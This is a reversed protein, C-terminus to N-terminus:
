RLVDRALNIQVLLFNSGGRDPHLSQTLERHKKKIEDQSAGSPLGLVEYAESRSMHNSAQRFPIQTQITQTKNKEILASLAHKAYALAAKKRRYKQHSLLVKDGHEIFTYWFRTEADYELRVKEDHYAYISYSGKVARKSVFQM